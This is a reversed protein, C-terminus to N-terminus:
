QRRCTRCLPFLRCSSVPNPASTTMIHELMRNTADGAAAAAAAAADFQRRDGEGADDACGKGAHDAGGDGDGDEVYIAVGALQLRQSVPSLAREGPRYLYPPSPPRCSAAAARAASIMLAALQGRRSPIYLFM